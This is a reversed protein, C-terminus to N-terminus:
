KLLYKEDTDQIESFDNDVLFQKRLEPLNITTQYLSPNKCLWKFFLGGTFNTLDKLKVKKDRKIYEAVTRMSKWFQYYKTKVKLMNFAADELVFGEFPVAPNFDMSSVTKYWLELEEFTHLTELLKKHKMNFKEADSKLNVYTKKSFELENYILDLLYIRNNEYTIIHPDRIPDVAEIVMTASKIRLFHKLDTLDEKTFKEDTLEKLINVMLGNLSSKTAIILENSGEHYSLM